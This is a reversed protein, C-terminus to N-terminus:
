RRCLISVSGRYTGSPISDLDIGIWFSQVRGKPINVQKKFANGRFDTGGLNYCTMRSSNILRGRRGIFDSFEVQVDSVDSNLAWVGIQYVFIEGPRANLAFYGPRIIKKLKSKLSRIM